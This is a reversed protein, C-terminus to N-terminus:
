AIYCYCIWRLLIIKNAALKIFSFYVQLTLWRYRQEPTLSSLQKNKIKNVNLIVSVMWCTNFIFIIHYRFCENPKCAILLNLKFNAVIKGWIFFHCCDIQLLSKMVDIGCVVTSVLVVKGLHGCLCILLLAMCSNLPSAVFCKSKAKRGDFTLSLSKIESYHKQAFFNSKEASVVRFYESFEM